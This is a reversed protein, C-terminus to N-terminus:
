SFINLVVFLYDVGLIQKQLTTKWMVLKYSMFENM